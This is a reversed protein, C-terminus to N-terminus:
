PASDRPHKSLRIRLKEYFQLAVAQEAKVVEDAGLQSARMGKSSYTTRAIIYINPRLRRVLSTAKLVAEEDPITLALIAADALGAKLLSEKETADGLVIDRGLARQTEVTVPNKELVTFPLRAAQALEAVYRGALGFGVIIVHGDPREIVSDEPLLPAVILETGEPWDAAEELVIEGNRLM